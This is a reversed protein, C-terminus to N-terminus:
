SCKRVIERKEKYFAPIFEDKMVGYLDLDSEETPQGHARSGFLIVCASDLPKLRAQIEQKLAEPNM